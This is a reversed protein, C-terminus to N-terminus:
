AINQLDARGQGLVATRYDRGRIMAWGDFASAGANGSGAARRLKGRAGTGGM